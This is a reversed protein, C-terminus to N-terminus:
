GPEIGMQSEVKKRAALGIAMCLRTIFFYFM